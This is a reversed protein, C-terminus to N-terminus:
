SSAGLRAVPDPVPDAVRNFNRAHMCIVELITIIITIQIM